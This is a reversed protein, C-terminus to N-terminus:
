PSIQPKYAGPDTGRPVRVRPRGGAWPFASLLGAVSMRNCYSTFAAPCQGDVQHVEWSPMPDSFFSNLQILSVDQRFLSTNLRVRGPRDLAQKRNLHFYPAPSQAIPVPLAHHM